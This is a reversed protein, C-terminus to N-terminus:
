AHTNGAQDRLPVAVPAPFPRGRDVILPGAGRKRGRGRKGGGPEDPPDRRLWLVSAPSRRIIDDVMGGTPGGAGRPSRFAAVVLDGPRLADVLERGIAGCRVETTVDLGRERCCSALDDLYARAFELHARLVRLAVNPQLSSNMPRLTPGSGLVPVVRLLHLPANALRAQAEAQPLTSEATRSGDLPMVIRTYM